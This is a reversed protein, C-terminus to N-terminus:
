INSYFGMLISDIKLCHLFFVIFSGMYLISFIFLDEFQPEFHMLLLFIYNDIFEFSLKDRMTKVLSMRFKHHWGFYLSGLCICQILKM